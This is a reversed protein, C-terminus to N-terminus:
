SGEAGDPRVVSLEAHALVVVRNDPFVEKLHHAQQAVWERSPRGETVTLAIVDGPQVRVVRAHELDVPETPNM